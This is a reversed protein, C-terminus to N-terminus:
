AVNSKISGPMLTQMTHTEPLSLPIGANRTRSVHELAMQLVGSTRYAAEDWDFQRARAMAPEFPMFPLGEKLSALMAEGLSSSDQPDVYRVVDGGVEPLSTTKSAVCRIGCAMAELLPLGFGEALSPFAFLLAGSYLGALHQEEVYGTYFVRPLDLLKSQSGYVKEDAKPGALVLWLDPSVKHYIKAWAELLGKLNKRSEQSSLSLIYRRSPLGLAGAARSIQTSNARTWSKSIGNHVVSITSPDKQMLKVLRSKTYESVAIVHISSHALRRMALGYWRAYAAGYWEPHEVPFLDHFTTVQKRHALPGSGGPNWLLRGATKHRLVTQEWLHGTVGRASRPSCIEVMSGLRTAIEHSYRQVGTMRHLRYRGNVVVEAQQSSNLRTNSM